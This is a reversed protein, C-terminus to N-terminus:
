VPRKLRMFVLHGRKFRITAMDLEAAGVFHTTGKAEVVRGTILSDIPYTTYGSLTLRSATTGHLTENAKAPKTTSRDAGRPLELRNGPRRVNPTDSLNAADEAGVV